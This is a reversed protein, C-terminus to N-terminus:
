SFSVWRRTASALLAASSFLPRRGCTWVSTAGAIGPFGNEEIWYQGVVDSITEVSDPKYFFEVGVACDEDYYTQYWPIIKVNADWVWKDNKSETQKLQVIWEDIGVKVEKVYRPDSFQFDFQDGICVLLPTHEKPKELAYVQNVGIISIIVLVLSLFIIVTNKM